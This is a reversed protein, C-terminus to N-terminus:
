FYLNHNVEVTVPLHNLKSLTNQGYCFVKNIKAVAIRPYVLVEACRIRKGDPQDSWHSSQRIIEWNLRPLNSLNAEYFSTKESAANGDSFVTYPQFLVYPDIALIILKSQQSRRLFLMPNKPNFYLPVYQHLPIGKIIKGDRLQQVQSHSIDTYKLNHQQIYQHSLLGRFLISDLNAISTIHYLYEIGYKKLITQGRFNKM